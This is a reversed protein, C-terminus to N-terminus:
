ASVSARCSTVIVVFDLRRSRTVDISRSIWRISMVSSFFSIGSHRKRQSSDMGSIASAIIVPVPLIVSPLLTMSPMQKMMSGM